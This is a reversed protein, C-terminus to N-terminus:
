RCEQADGFVFELAQASLEGRSGPEDVVRGMVQGGALLECLQQLQGARCGGGGATGSRLFAM